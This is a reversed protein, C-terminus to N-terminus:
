SSFNKLLQAPNGSLIDYDNTASSVVSGAAVVNQVGLDAMIVAGNGIWSNSGITIKKFM